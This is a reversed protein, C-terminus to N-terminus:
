AARCPIPIRGRPDAKSRGRVLAFRRAEPHKAHSWSCRILDPCPRLRTHRGRARPHGHELHRSEERPSVGQHIPQSTLGRLQEPRPHRRRHETVTGSPYRQGQHPEAQTAPLLRGQSIWGRLPRPGRPHRRGGLQDEIEAPWARLHHEQHKNGHLHKRLKQLSERHFSQAEQKATSPPALLGAHGAKHRHRLGGSCTRPHSVNMDQKAKALPAPLLHLMEAARQCMSRQSTPRQSAPASKDQNKVPVPRLLEPRGAKRDQAQLLAVLGSAVQEASQARDELHVARLHNDQRIRFSSRPYENM